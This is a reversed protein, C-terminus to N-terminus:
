RVLFGKFSFLKNIKEVVFRQYNLMKMNDVLFAGLLIVGIGIPHNLYPTFIHIVIIALISLIIVKNWVMFRFAKISKISILLHLIFLFYIMTGLLGLKVLLDHIGWEFRFSSYLGDGTENIIRPDSSKYTIEKGFGYGLLPSNSIEENLEILLDARSVIAAGRGVTASTEYFLANTLDPKQVLIGSITFIALLASFVMAFSVRTLSSFFSRVDKVQKLLIILAIPLISIIGVAFSRSMSLLLAAGVAMFPLNFYFAGRQSNFSIYFNAMLYYLWSVLLLLQSPLFVRYFYPSNPIFLLLFNEFMGRGQMVLLTIEAIRRDRFFKYWFDLIKGDLHSFLFAMLLTQIALVFTGVLIAEILIRYDNKDWKIMFIPVLYLYFLYATFDSFALNFGNNFIGFVLSFLFYLFLLLLSLPLRNSDIDIRKKMISTFIGSFFAIFLVQRISLSYVHWPLEILQGHGGAILEFFVIALGTIPSIYVLYSMGLLIVFLIPWSFFPNLYSLFSLLYMSIFIGIWSFIRNAEFKM